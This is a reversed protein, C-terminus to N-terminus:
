PFLYKAETSRRTDVVPNLQLNRSPPVDPIYRIKKKSALPLTPSFSSSLIIHTETLHYSFDTHVCFNYLSCNGFARKKSQMKSSRSSALVRIANGVDYNLCKM